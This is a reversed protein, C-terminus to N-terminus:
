FAAAMHTSWLITPHYTVISSTQMSGFIKGSQICIPYNNICETNMSFSFTRLLVELFGQAIKEETDLSGFPMCYRESIMTRQQCPEFFILGALVNNSWIEFDQSDHEIVRLVGHLQGRANFSWETARDRSHCSTKWAFRDVNLAVGHFWEVTAPDLLPAPIHILDGVKELYEDLSETEMVITRVSLITTGRGQICFVRSTVGEVLYPAQKFHIIRNKCRRPDCVVRQEFSPSPRMPNVWLRDWGLAPFDAQTLFIIISIFAEANEFIDLNPSIITGAPDSHVLTFQSNQILLGVASTRFLQAERVSALYGLLQLLKNVPTYQLSGATRIHTSPIRGEEGAVDTTDGDGSPTSPAGRLTPSKFIAAGMPLATIFPAAFDSSRPLQPGSQSAEPPPDHDFIKTFGVEIVTLVDLLEVSGTYTSENGFYPQSHEGDANWGMAGMLDFSMTPSETEKMQQVPKRPSCLWSMKTNDWAAHNPEAERIASSIANLTERLPAYLDAECSAHEFADKMDAWVPSNMISTVTEKHWAPLDDYTIEVSRGRASTSRPFFVGPHHRSRKGRDFIATVIQEWRDAVILKHKMEDRINQKISTRSRKASGPGHYSTDSQRKIPGSQSM